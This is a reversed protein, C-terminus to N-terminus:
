NFYYKLNLFFYKLYEINYINPLQYLFKRDHMKAKTIKVFEDIGSFTELMSHVKLGGKKIKILFFM